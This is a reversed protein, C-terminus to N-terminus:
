GKAAVLGWVEGAGNEKLVRACENLTSGTTAVDDLLVINRGALNEARWAFCNRINERREKEGLKVQAKKHKVRVLSDASIELNFYKVLERAIEESQNFGRWRRRKKHLSVPIILSENFNLFIKPSHKIKDLKRWMEEGKLDLNSLRNKNILDRLFLAMFKGLSASLDRAFKYKLSKVLNAILKDEYRGAIWVGDLSYNSSCDPCFEGFRNEKKCSLCYQKERNKIKKFCGFCLWVGERECGLCEIPFILDLFFARVKAANKKLTIIKDLFM